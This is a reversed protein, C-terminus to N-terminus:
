GGGPRPPVERDLLGVIRSEGEGLDAGEPVLVVWHGIPCRQRGSLAGASGLRVLICAPWSDLGFGIVQDEVDPRCRHLRM